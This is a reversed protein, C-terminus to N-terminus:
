FRTVTAAVCWKKHTSKQRKVDLNEAHQAFGSISKLQILNLHTNQTM